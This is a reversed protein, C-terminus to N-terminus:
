FHCILFQLKLNEKKLIILIIIKLQSTHVERWGCSSGESTCCFATYEGLQVDSLCPLCVVWIQRSGYAVSTKIGEPDFAASLREERENRGWRVREEELSFPWTQNIM